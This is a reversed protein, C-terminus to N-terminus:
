QSTLRRADLQEVTRQRFAMPRRGAAELGAHLQRSRRGSRRAAVPTLSWEYTGLEVACEEGVFVERNSLVLSATRYYSLFGDCWGRMANKGRVIDEGPPMLLVDDAVYAFLAGADNVRLAQHYAATAAEFAARRATIPQANKTV